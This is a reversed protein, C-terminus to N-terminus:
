RELILKMSSRGLENELYVMYLGNPLQAPIAVQEQNYVTKKMLLKGQLDFLHFQAKGGEFDIKLGQNRVPNPYIKFHSTYSKVNSFTVGLLVSIASCSDANFIEIQYNGGFKPWDIYFFLTDKNVPIPSGDLYWQYGDAITTTYIYDTQWPNQLLVDPKALQVGAAINVQTSDIQNISDAVYVWYNGECLGTFNGGSISFTYPPVGGTASAVVEGRCDGLCKEARITDISLVLTPPPPPPTNESVSLTATAVQDGSTASNNNTRNIAAYFTVAGTGAAPATWNMSWTKSNNSGMTGGSTHAVYNTPSIQTQSSNTIIWTGAKANNSNAEATIMFGFRNFTPHNATVTITYTQGPVYGTAPITSTIANAAVTVPSGGHCSACTQNFDGPSGTYGNGFFGNSYSQLKSQGALLAIIILTLISYLKKM